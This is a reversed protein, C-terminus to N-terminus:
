RRAEIEEVCERHLASPVPYLFSRRKEEAVFERLDRWCGDGSGDPLTYGRRGENNILCTVLRKEGRKRRFSFSITSHWDSYRFLFVGRQERGNGRSAEWEETARRAEDRSLKGHFWPVLCGSEDFLSRAAKILCSRMPGFRTLFQALHKPTVREGAAARAPSGRDFAYRLVMEAEARTARPLQSM